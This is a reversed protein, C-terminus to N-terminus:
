RCCNDKLAQTLSDMETDSMKFDSNMQMPMAEMKPMRLDLGIMDSINLDNDSM